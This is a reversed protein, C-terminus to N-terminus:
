EGTQLEQDVTLRGAEQAMILAAETLRVLRSDTVSDGYAAIIRAKADEYDTAEDIARLVSAVTPALEKAAHAVCEGELRDVYDRGREFATSTAAEARVSSDALALARSNKPAKPPKPLAKKPADNSGDEPDDTAGDDSSDPAAPVVPAPAVPKKIEATAGKILQVKGETFWVLQDIQAGADVYTGFAKADSERAKSEAERDSPPTTDWHPYPVPGSLPNYSHWYPLLQDHFATAILELMGTFKTSDVTAWVEERARSGNSSDSGLNTGVLAIEIESNAADKQAQFTEYTKAGDTELKGQWGRPFVVVGNRGAEGVKNAVKNKAADNPLDEGTDAELGASGASMTNTVFVQGQGHRESSSAWDVPAYRKGLLWWPAIGLWPAQVPARYNSGFLILIWNGDGPTIREEIGWSNGAADAVRVVWGDTPDNRLNRPSWVSIVPLVRGTEEDKKWEDIHLLCVKLLTLWAVVMMMTQEPLMKWWDNDLAQCTPDSKSAKADKGPLQFTLPLTTASYLRGLCKSVRSDPMMAECLDAAMQYNGAGCQIEATRIREPSWGTVTSTRPERASVGISDDPKPKAKALSKLNPNPAM